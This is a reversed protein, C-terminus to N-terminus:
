GILINELPRQSPPNNNKEALALLFTIFGIRGFYMLIIIVTKSAASLATTIGLSLGVTAIASTTEFIASLAPVDDFSCILISSITILALYSTIIAAAQQLLTNNLRRKVIMIDRDNKATSIISCILVVFTTTKIGGATSGSSGGIFMLLISIMISSDKMDAFNITNFGATRTTVSQFMAVLFKEGVNYSSLTHDYEIFFILFAPIFILCLTSIIVIKSHLQYKSFNFKNVAVDNWVTFGLGGTIILLMIIINAYPNDALSTLSAFPEGFIGMLDFGANCFASVSTFISMFIGYGHAKPIFVPLLLISGTLEACFTFIFIKKVLRLGGTARFSGFTQFLIKSSYIDINKRFTALILTVVTMFGLGGIQILCLIVIQGFLTWHLFTDYQVLGTVCTASTSTFLANLFNTEIGNKNSIPLILLLAGILIISAFTLVILQTSTLRLFKKMIVNYRM